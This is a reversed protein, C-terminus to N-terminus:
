FLLLEKRSPYTKKESTDLYISFVLLFDPNDAKTFIAVYKGVTNKVELM